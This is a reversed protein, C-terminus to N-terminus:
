VAPAMMNAFCQGPGSALHNPNWSHHCAIPMAAPATRKAMFRPRMAAPQSTLCASWLGRDKNEAKRALRAFLARHSTNPEVPDLRAYGKRVIEANIFLGDSARYVYALLRGYRDQHEDDFVLRVEDGPELLKALFESAERGFCEAETYPGSVEPTDIGILRVRSGDTLRITDGDTVDDLTATTEGGGVLSIVALAVAALGTGM